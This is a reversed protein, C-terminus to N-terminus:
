RKVTESPSRAFGFTISQSQTTLNIDHCFGTKIDRESRRLQCKEVVCQLQFRDIICKKCELKLPLDDDPSRSVIILTHGNPLQQQQKTHRYM